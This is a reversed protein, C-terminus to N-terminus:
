AALELGYVTVLRLEELEVAYRASDDHTQAVVARGGLRAQLEAVDDDGDVAELDAVRVGHDVAQGRTADAVRAVQADDAVALLDGHGDRQQRRRLRALVVHAIERARMGEVARADGVDQRADGVFQVEVVRVADHNDRHAGAADGRTEVELRA